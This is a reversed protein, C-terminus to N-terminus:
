GKFYRHPVFPLPHVSVPVRNGRVEAFLKTGPSALAPPVYGMAVPAEASPGFGGSTVEGAPDGAADFLKAGGRVPQRGEPKLGVRKRQAGAAVLAALAAAGIFRGAERVPKSVAWM